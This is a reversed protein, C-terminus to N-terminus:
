LDKDGDDPDVRVISFLLDRLRQNKVLCLCPFEGSFIKTYKNATFDEFRVRMNECLMM